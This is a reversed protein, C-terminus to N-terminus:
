KNKPVVTSAPETADSQRTIASSKGLGAALNQLDKNQDNWGTGNTLELGVEYGGKTSNCFRVTGRGGLALTPCSFAVMTRAPLKMPIWIRAGSVSIDTLRGQLRNEHGNEDDWLMAVMKNIPTRSYRRREKKRTIQGM